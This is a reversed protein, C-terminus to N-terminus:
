VLHAMGLIMYNRRLSHMHKIASEKAERERRFVDQQHLPQEAEARLTALNEVIWKGKRSDTPAPSPSLDFPNAEEDDSDYCCTRM